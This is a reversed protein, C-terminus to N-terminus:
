LIGKNTKPIRPSEKAGVCFLISEASLNDCWHFLNLKDATECTIQLVKNMKTKMLPTLDYVGSLLVLYKITIKDKCVLSSALYAGASHGILCLPSQPFRSKIIHLAKEIQKSIEYISISPCLDYGIIAVSHGNQLFPKSVMAYNEKKGEYWFGGHIYVILLENRNETNPYFFDIRERDSNGYPVNLDCPFITRVVESEHMSLNLFHQLCEERSSHKSTWLSPTYQKDFWEPSSEMYASPAWCVM